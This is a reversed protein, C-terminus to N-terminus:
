KKKRLAVVALALCWLHCCANARSAKCLKLAHYYRQNLTSKLFKIVTWYTFFRPNSDGYLEPSVQTFLPLLFNASDGADSDTQSVWPLM